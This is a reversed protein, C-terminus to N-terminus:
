LNLAFITCYLLISFSMMDNVSIIDHRKTMKSLSVNWGCKQEHTNGNLIDGSPLMVPKRRLIRSKSAMPNGSINQQPSLLIFRRSPETKIM